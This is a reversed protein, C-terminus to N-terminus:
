FRVLNGLHKTNDMECQVSSVFLMLAKNWRCLNMCHEKHWLSRYKLQTHRTASIHERLHYQWM